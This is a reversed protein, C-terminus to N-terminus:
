AADKKKFLWDWGTKIVRYISTIPLYWKTDSYDPEWIPEAKYLAKTIVWFDCSLKQHFVYEAPIWFYGGDGWNKSYSNRCKFYLVKNFYKWGAIDVCHGGRMGAAFDEKTPMDMMGTTAVKECDFNRYVAFGFIVLRKKEFLTSMIGHYRNDDSIKFYEINKRKLADKFAEESPKEKFKNIDYPWLREECLGYKAVAKISERIYAGTDEDKDDRIIWYGFLRSLDVWKDDEMHDIQEMSGVIGHMVCSGITEQNEVPTCTPALDFEDPYQTVIRKLLPKKELFKDRPDPLDPKWGLAYPGTM